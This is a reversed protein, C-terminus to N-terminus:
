LAAPMSQSAGKSELFRRFKAESEEPTQLGHEEAIALSHIYAAQSSSVHKRREDDVPSNDLIDVVDRYDRLQM